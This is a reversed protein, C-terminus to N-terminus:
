KYRKQLDKLDDPNGIITLFDGAEIMTNGKPVVVQSGKRIWAILCSQPLVIDKVFKNMLVDSKSNTLVHLSICKENHSLVEKISQADSAIFFKDLFESDDVRGAIQALMRLHRAPDSEPSVLFFLAFVKQEEEEKYTLPDFTTITVGARCRVLAMYTRDINASRFHPLAVGNTVPTAGIRTGQMFFDNIEKASYPIVQKFYDAVKIVVDEFRTERDLDLVYSEAVTEDFPDEARLGKEKLIERLEFDLQSSRNRGLREFLHYIAGSRFIRKKAYVFYWITGIGILGLSFIHSLFGMQNILYYASIIGIIQIWPYFPVRFSPDYSAIKSERIVIVALNLFIFVILNFTGALKAIKMPNLFILSVIIVGVTVTISYFPAHAKNLRAFIRPLIHDRSMALPYRSASMIGANAVSLFSLLAAISIVFLGLKGWIIFAASAAPTLNNKLENIPIVGVMVMSGLIYITATSFVTLLIGRPLDKGPNKIEESLSVVNFVGIYAILVLGTTSPINSFNIDIIKVLKEYDSNAIGGFIFAGLILIILTVMVKQIYIGKKAGMINLVWFIIAFLIAIPIIQVEPFLFSIYAGMGILAFSVKLILALWTGMGGITGFYPGILRDLFFYDGGTKPMATALEIISLSVPILVILAFFYALVFSAGSEQAAIGPLLFFGSSIAAGAAFIDYFNLHKKLKSATISM